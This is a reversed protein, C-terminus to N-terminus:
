NIRATSGRVVLEADMVVSQIDDKGELLRLLTQAALEGKELIPQKITTLPPETYESEPIGDFGIVSIDDPIKMGAERIARMAGLAMIDGGAFIATPYRGASLIRKMASYGGQMSTDDETVFCAEFPLEHKALTDEFAQLRQKSNVLSNAAAIMGIHRHGLSVLYEVAMCASKYNDIDVHIMGDEGRMTTTAVFPAEISKLTTIINADYEGLRIMIFGDVRRQRFINVIDDPKGTNCFLLYYEKSNLANLIGRIIEAYFSNTLIYDLERPVILGICHSKNSQIGRAFANPQFQHKEILDLILKRTEEKVDAKNNLVRSVTTCSVNAMKAITKITLSM